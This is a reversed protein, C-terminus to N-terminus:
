SKLSKSPAAIYEEIPKPEGFYYGQAYPIDLEHIMEYIEKSSVFEAVLDYGYIDSLSKISTLMMKTRKPDHLLAQILTGDIKLIDIDLKILYIYNAYGSGFDDIAIQSGYMRLQQFVIATQDYDKIEHDELIEFTVRHANEKHRFLEQTILTMMDVHYLDQLNLNITIKIDPYTDLTKFVEKFVLKSMKTYQTTGRIIELFHHPSILTHPEEKDILRVLAEYKVIEQTETDVIPQYLCTLHGEELIKKIYDINKYKIETESVKDVAILANKGRNKVELLKEDLYRQINGIDKADNPTVMASMSLTVSITENNILYRKKTLKGFLREAIEQLNTHRKELVVFFESGGTYIIQSGRPLLSMIEKTFLKLLTDGTNRGYRENIRKLADIDILIANYQSVKKVDFFEKLYLKTYASTLPDIWMNKRLKYFNYTLYVLFLFGLLLFWQMLSVVSAISANFGNLHNGYTESLDMVLLAETQNNEVLPYLLSLWIEEVSESQTIIQPKQTTYIHNFRSSKPFFVTNYEISDNTSGDLLFRYHGQTDKHLLFIYQIDDTLFTHLMKNFSKRRDPHTKLFSKITTNNTESQIYCIIKKAYQEIKQLEENKLKETSKSISFQLFLAFIVLIGMIGFIYKETNRQKM